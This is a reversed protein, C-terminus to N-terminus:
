PVLLRAMARRTDYPQGPVIRSYAGLVRGDAGALFPPSEREPEDSISFEELMELELSLVAGYLNTEEETGSPWAVVFNEGDFAVSAGGSITELAVILHGGPDLVQGDPSVRTAWIGSSNQWVVRHHNGDFAIQIHHDLPSSTDIFFPQGELAGAKSIRQAFFGNAVSDDWVVLYGIGDFSAAVEYPYNGGVIPVIDGPVGDHDVLVAALGDLGEEDAVVLTHEGDSATALMWGVLYPSLPEADLREGAPSVRAMQIVTLEWGGGNAWTVLYNVGDFVVDVVDARPAIPIAELDLPTGNAAVRGGYLARGEGKGQPDRTDTWVVFFDTGDSAVGKVEQRGAPSAPAVEGAAIPMGSADLRRGVILPYDDYPNKGDRWLLLGGDPNVAVSAELGRAIADAPHSSVTGEATIEAVRIEPAPVPGHQDYDRSVVVVSRGNGAVLDFRNVDVGDDDAPLAELVDSAITGDPAVHRAVIMAHRWVIVHNTGDFGAVVGLDSSASMGMPTIRIPLADIPTGDPGMRVAEIVRNQTQADWGVASVLSNTGDFSVGVPSAYYGTLGDVKVGDPDLVTGDPQVRARYIGNDPNAQSWQSWAVLYQDGDFVLSPRSASGQELTTIAFGKPDLVEGMPSVRVGRIQEGKAVTVAVLFNEGDFAVAPRYEHPPYSDPVVDLIPFGFPDLATGDMAVRGGYLIPRPRRNDEWVVLYQGGGFVASPWAGPVPSHVPIPEVMVEALMPVKTDPDAGDDTEGDPGDDSSSDPGDNAEDAGATQAAAEDNSCGTGILFLGIGVRIRLWQGVM